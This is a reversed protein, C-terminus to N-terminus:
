EIRYTSAREAYSPSARGRRALAGSALIKKLAVGATPGPREGLFLVGWGAGCLPILYNTLAAFTAGGSGLLSFFMLAGLGTSLVALAAIAAM